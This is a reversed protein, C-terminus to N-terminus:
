GVNCACGFLSSVAIAHELVCKELRGLRGGSERTRFLGTTTRSPYCVLSQEACGHIQSCKLELRVMAGGATTSTLRM